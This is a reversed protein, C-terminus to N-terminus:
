VIEQYAKIMDDLAKVQDIIPILANRELIYGSGEYKNLIFQLHDFIYKTHTQSQVLKRKIYERNNRPM